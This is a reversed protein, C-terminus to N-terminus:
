GVGRIPADGVWLFPVYQGTEPEQWCSSSTGQTQFGRSVSINLEALITIALNYQLLDSRLAM